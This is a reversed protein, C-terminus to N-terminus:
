HVNSSPLLSLSIGQQEKTLSSFWSRIHDISVYQCSMAPLCYNSQILKQFDVSLLGLLATALAIQVPLAMRITADQSLFGSLKCRLNEVGNDEYGCASVGLRGLQGLLIVVAVAFHDLKTRELMELLEPIIKYCTWEWSMNCALLEVLSLLDSLGCLTENMISNSGVPMVCKKISCPTDCNMDLASHVEEQNLSRKATDKCCLLNSNSFSPSKMLHDMIGSVGCNQLKELLVSIVSDISLADRSFPCKACPHFMVGKYMTLSSAASAVPSDGGELFMIISKLVTVTLNHERLSFFKEGALYAFIHLITLVSVTDCKRMLLLNYSAQCLFGICDVATCISGLVISGAVLLDASASKSAFKINVGDLLIDVMSDCGNLSEFSLDAYIMLKGDLLFEEILDLLEDLCCVEAFLNRAEVDSVLANIDRAFSDLCFLFDQDSFSEFKGWNCASFNLLLLTFFTCAKEKPLSNEEMKLARLIKQVLRDAQTDLSCRTMCTRTASLVRSMSITDNMDSLMVCYKPINNPRSGPEGEIPFKLSESRSSPINLMEAESGSGPGRIQGDSSKGADVTNNLMEAEPGSGPGRIQGDSAKGADVTNGAGSRNGLTDLSDAHAENEACSIGFSCNKLQKSSIEADIADLRSSPVLSEKGNPLSEHFSDDLLPKFNDINDSIEAGSSGIELLTPSMPMEMARRYCEEDATNDLDLLKMYDENVVEEFNVMGEPSSEFSDSLGEQFAKSAELLNNAATSIYGCANANEYVEKGAIETKELQDIGSLCRVIVNKECSIKRKKRTRGHKGYSDGQVNPEVYKVEEQPKEIQRNLMGRLASLKDEMQLHLKKSEPYLLEVSEAADLIRRNRGHRNVRGIMDIRHPSRVSNDAVVALNENHQVKTVEDSISSITTQARFNEEVINKSTPFFPGGEQSGVLQGDSFSASSSNIASTQLLKRKSGGLLSELKSDIGSISAAYNGSSPSVLPVTCHLTQTLPESVALNLLESVNNPYMQCTEEACLKRNLKSRRMTEHNGFKEMNETGGNSSSFYRDLVNLRFLMQGFDLKLRALEQQLFSNHNKEMKAVVKAHKLRMKELKVQKELLKLKSKEVNMFKDPSVSSAVATKKSSQLEQIQKQLEEIKIKDEDLQRSLQDARSKEEAAVKRNIKSLNRLKEAKVMESAARKQETIAKLKEVNLRKTAEEYNLFELVLNSQGSNNKLNEMSDKITAIEGNTIEDHQDDFNGGMNKSQTFGNVRKDLEEIKIRAVQLQRSLNDARSKEEIIKMGNTEALKRQEKAKAVESDARKREKMVKAKEAELMKNADGLKLTEAVLKSKAEVAEKKFFELQLQYEEAKQPKEIRKKVDELQKCINETHSKEELLKMRNAEALKRHAEAKAMESDARKKEKAVKLKVAEFKKNAEEFKLTESAMKSKALGAEKMLAELRLQYEEAKKQESSAHKREEDANAKEAKVQQWAEAARKKEVEAKKKESDARTKEREHLEKLRSIEKEGKSVQDQLLKVEGNKDEAVMSGMLQSTSIESKLASIENELSVRLVAEKEKGEKEAKLHKWADAARKKEVEANKKESDARLKERELLEKLRSIEKEGKFVENQLLKVETNEVEQFANGKQHLTSVESKLASIEKELTVRLAVEKERGEKVAEVKVREEECAKNLSVIEAQFKDAQETLLKVAQRLCKRGEELKGCKEKWVKCCPNNLTAEKKVTVDAAM